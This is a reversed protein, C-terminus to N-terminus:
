GMLDIISKQSVNAQKLAYARATEQLKIQNLIISEEALDTDRIQSEAAQLNVRATSLTSIDSAYQNQSAGVDSRVQNIQDMAQDVTDMVTQAGEATTLDIDTLFGTETSGLKSPDVSGISLGPTNFTGDLLTQGNYATTEAIDKLADLAGTIESQIAARSEQSHTGNAAEITKTKIGELIDSMQGLAGDATQAISISAGANQIEQGAALARSKLSDAITMAAADDSASNIKKGTAIRELSKAMASRNKGTQQASILASTNNQIRFAM